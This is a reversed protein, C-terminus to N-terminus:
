NTLSLGFAVAWECNKQEPELDSNKGFKGNDGVRAIPDGLQAPLGLGRAIKEGLMRNKAQGGLFITKAVPRTEFMLNHYRVCARIENCLDRLMPGIAVGADIQWDENKQQTKISMEAVAAGQTKIINEASDNQQSNELHKQTQQGLNRHMYMAHDYDVDLKQEIAALMQGAGIKITRAFVLAAGHAVLVKTCSHGLDLLMTATKEQENKGLLHEFGKMMACPEVNVGSIEIRARELLRLHQQVVRETAAMLVVELKTQSGQYIEGAVVHRLLADRVNFPLKQQAQELLAHEIQSEDTTALRIHEILMDRASLCSVVKKGKFPKRALLERITKVQWDQLMAPDNRLELPVAAKAAAVLQLNEESGALQVVKISDSGLDIGIPYM